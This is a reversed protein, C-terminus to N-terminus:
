CWWNAMFLCQLNMTCTQGLFVMKVIIIRVYCYSHSSIFLCLITTCFTPWVLGLSASSYAVFHNPYSHWKLWLPAIRIPKVNPGITWKMNNTLYSGSGLKGVWSVSFSTSCSSPASSSSRFLTSGTSLAAWRTTPRFFFITKNPKM